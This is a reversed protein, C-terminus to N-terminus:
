VCLHLLVAVLFGLSQKEGCQPVVRTKDVLALLSMCVGTAKRVALTFSGSSSSQPFSLHTRYYRLPVISRFSQKSASATGSM